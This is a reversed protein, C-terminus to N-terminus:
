VQYGGKVTITNSGATGSVPWPGSLSFTQCLPRATPKNLIQALGSTANWDANVQPYVRTGGVTLVPTIVSSSALGGTSIGGSTITGSVIGNGIVHLPATPGVIGIGIATNVIFNSGSVTAGGALTSLRTVGLTGPVNWGASSGTLDNTFQTLKTPKNLIQALGSTANWDANVQPYVRTGAVTLAPTSISPATLAGTNTNGAVALTGPITVNDWLKVTLSGAVTGGGIIDLAGPTLAQYGVLGANAPKTLNSGFNVVQSGRVNLFGVECGSSLSMQFGRTIGSIDLTGPVTVNDWLKM